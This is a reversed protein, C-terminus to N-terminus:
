ETWSSGRAPASPLHWGHGVCQLSFRSRGLRGGEDVLVVGRSRTGAARRRPGAATAITMAPKQKKVGVITVPPCTVAANSKEVNRHNAPAAARM